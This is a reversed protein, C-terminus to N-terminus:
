YFEKVRRRTASGVFGMIIFVVGIALMIGAQLYIRTQWLTTLPRLLERMVQNVPVLTGSIQSPAFQATRIWLDLLAPMTLTGLLAVVATVALPWGWWHGWEGLSRVALLAILLLLVLPIAWLAPGLRNVLVFIRRTRQLQEAGQGTRSVDQFLSVEVVGAEDLVNPNENIIADINEQVLRTSDEVSLDPPLCIPISIGEESIGFGTVADPCPPLSQMVAQISRTGPEGRLREIVPRIDIRIVTEDMDGTELYDFLEDVATDVQENVWDPPALERVAEQLVATDIDDLEVGQARAEKQMAEALLSPGVEVVLPGLDFSEKMAERSTMIQTLNVAFLIGLTIIFFLVAVVGALVRLCGRM